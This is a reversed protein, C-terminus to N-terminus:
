FSVDFYDIDTFEVRLADARTGGDKFYILAPGWAQEVGVVGEVGVGLDDGVEPPCGVSDVM